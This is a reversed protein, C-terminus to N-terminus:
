GAGALMASDIFQKVPAEVDDYGGLIILVDGSSFALDGAFRGNNTPSVDKIAPQGSVTANPPGGYSKLESAIKSAATGAPFSVMVLEYSDLQLLGLNGISWSTASSHGAFLGRFAPPNPVSLPTGPFDADVTVGFANYPKSSGTARAPSASRSSCASLLCASALTLVLVLLSGRHRSLM